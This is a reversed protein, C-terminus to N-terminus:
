NIIDLLEVEFTLAAGAPIKGSGREGYAIDSPCTLKAKGGVKMMAIGETWCPIVSGLSIELPQGRSVSSDFVTGDRLTGTYHTKVLSEATPSEGDGAVLELYVLGTESTVAGEEAAMTAIYAASQGREGESRARQKEVQIERLKLQYTADDLIEATGAMSESLGQLVAKTEQPTLELPILNKGMLTGVYYYVKHDESIPASASMDSSGMDSQQCGVLVFASIAVATFKIPSVIGM